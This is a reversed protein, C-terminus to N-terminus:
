AAQGSLMNMLQESMQSPDQEEQPPPAQGKAALEAQMQAKQAAAMRQMLAEVKTEDEDIEELVYQGDVVGGQLLAMAREFKAQFGGPPMPSFDVDSEFDDPISNKRGWEGNEDLNTRENVTIYESKGGHGSVRVIREDKFFQVMRDLIMIDENRVAAKVHKTMKGVIVNAQQKIIEAGGLTTVQAPMEGHLIDVGGSIDRIKQRLREEMDFWKPNAGPKNLTYYGQGNPSKDWYVNGPANNFQKGEQANAINIVLPSDSEYKQQDLAYSHIENLETQMSELMEVLSIGYVSDKNRIVNYVSYPYKEDQYPSPGDQLIMGNACVIYRLTGDEQRIWVEMLTVLDKDTKKLTSNSQQTATGDPITFSATDGSGATSFTGSGGYLPTLTGDWVGGPVSPGREPWRAAVESKPVNQAEIVYSSNQAKRTHPAFFIHSEDVFILRPAGRKGDMTWDWEVRRIGTGTVVASRVPLELETDQENIDHTWNILKSFMEATPKDELKRAMVTSEPIEDWVNGVFTETASYTENIVKMSFGQARRKEWQRGRWFDWWKAWRDAGCQMKWKKAKQYYGWIKEAKARDSETLETAATFSGFLVDKGVQAEFADSVVAPNSM